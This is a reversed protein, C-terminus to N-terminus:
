DLDEAGGKLYLSNLSTNHPLTFYDRFSEMAMLEVTKSSVSASDSSLRKRYNFSPGGQQVKGLVRPPAIVPLDPVTSITGNELSLFAIPTTTFTPSSLHLNNKFSAEPIRVRDRVLCMTTGM